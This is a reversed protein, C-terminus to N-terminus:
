IGLTKKIDKILLYLHLSDIPSHEFGFHEYFSKARENKAHVLIARGGISDSAGVIRVLADRLLVKGLGTGQKTNDVALRALVIVPVPYRALGQSIRQPTEQRSVSGPTLTYYGAVQNNKVAVYTRSSGNQNNILAFRKLYSNLSEDGCDFHGVDHSRQLLVPLAFSFEESM